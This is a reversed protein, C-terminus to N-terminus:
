EIFCTKTNQRRKATELERASLFVFNEAAEGQNPSSKNGEARTCSQQSGTQKLYRLYNIYSDSLSPVPETDRGTFTESVVIKSDELEV